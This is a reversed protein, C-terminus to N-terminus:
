KGGPTSPELRAARERLARAARAKVEAASVLAAAEGELRQALAALEAATKGEPAPLPDPARGLERIASKIAAKAEDNREVELRDVLAPLARTARLAALARAAAGRTRFYPDALTKVAHDVVRPDDIGAKAFAELAGRALHHQGGAEAAYGLVPLIAGVARPDGLAVLGEVAGLRIAERYSPWRLAAVLAEYAGPSALRGLARAAAGRVYYSPDNSLLNRLVFGIRVSGKASASDGLADAARTRVVSADDTLAEVLAELRYEGSLPAEDSMTALVDVIARRVGAVPETKRAERLAGAALESMEGLAYAAEIRGSVDDHELQLALELHERPFTVRKLVKGGADFRIWSPRGPMSFVFTQERADVLVREVRPAYKGNAGEWFALDIPMKFLGCGPSEPQVQRVRVSLENRDPDFDTAIAYEPYGAGYVWQDWFWGLDAGHVQEMARRLDESTANAHRKAAVYARVGDRFQAEGMVGSLMHLVCEGKTYNLGLPLELPKKPKGPAPLVLGKRTTEPRSARAVERMQASLECAFRDAGEHDRTWLNAFYTAFGENLWMESWDNCTVLDGFWMHALEHAILNDASYDLHARHDYLARLNLTTATTNEMGGYMFDWVTTQAYSGYPYREKTYESFFRVMDPTRGFALRAEPGRGPPVYYVLPVDEWREEVRDFRGVVVSVLYNVHEHDFRYHWVADEAPPAVVSSSGYPVPASTEPPAEICTGNAIVRFTKPARARIESTFRDDPEDYCPYWFRNDTGEGQSWMQWPIEPHTPTPAFFYLGRRPTAAYEIDVRFPVGKPQVSGLDIALEGDEARFRRAPRPDGTAPAVTVAAVTLEVGHLRLRAFGDVIPALTLSAVGEVRAKALDFRVDLALHRVDYDRTEPGLPQAALSPAVLLVVATAFRVRTLM